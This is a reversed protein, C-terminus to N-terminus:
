SPTSRSDLQQQLPARQHHHHHHHPRLEEVVRGIAQDIRVVALIMPDLVAEAVRSAEAEEEVAAPSAEVELDLATSDEEVVEMRFDVAEVAAMRSAEVEEM